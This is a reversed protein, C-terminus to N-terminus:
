LIMKYHVKIKGKLVFVFFFNLTKLSPTIWVSSLNYVLFGLISVSVTQLFIEFQVCISTELYSDVRFYVGTLPMNALINEGNSNM